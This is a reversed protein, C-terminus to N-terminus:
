RFAAKVPRTGLKTVAPAAGTGPDPKLDRYSERLERRGHERRLSVAARVVM